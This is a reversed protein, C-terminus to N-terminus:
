RLVQLVITLRTITAVSNINFRLIDGAAITTTWGTLAADQAKAASNLTPSASAVISDGVVPPFNAYTDKWIDVVVSGAQDALLTAETITCAFPVKLDGKMGTSLVAGGGDIIFTIVSTRLAATTSVTVDGTGSDVGTSTLAVGSGALVKAIVASAATITDIDARQVSGDLVQQGTIQTRAM